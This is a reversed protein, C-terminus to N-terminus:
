ADAGQALPETIDIELHMEPFYAFNGNREYLPGYDHDVIFFRKSNACAAVADAEYLAADIALMYSVALGTVQDPDAGNVGFKVTLRNRSAKAGVIEPDFLSSHPLVAVPPWNMMAALTWSQRFDLFPELGGYQAATMGKLADLV